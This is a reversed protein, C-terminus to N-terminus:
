HIISEISFPSHFISFPFHLISVPRGAKAPSTGGKGASAELGAKYKENEM